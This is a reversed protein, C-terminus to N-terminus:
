PVVDAKGTKTTLMVQRASTLCYCLLAHAAQALQLYYSLWFKFLTLIFETRKTEKWKLQLRKEPDM